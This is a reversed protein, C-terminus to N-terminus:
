IKVAAWPWQTKAVVGNGTYKSLKEMIQVIVSDCEYLMSMIHKSLKEPLNLSKGEATDEKLIELNLKLGGLESHLTDMDQYADRYRSAFYAIAASAKGVTGVLGVITATM